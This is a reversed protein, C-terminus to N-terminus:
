LGLQNELKYLKKTANPYDEPHDELFTILSVFDTCLYNEYWYPYYGHHFISRDYRLNGQYMQVFANWTIVIRQNVNVNTFNKATGVGEGVGTLSSSHGILWYYYVFYALLSCDFTGDTYTLGQWRVSKAGKTYTKGNVLDLWKQPAGPDIVIKNNSDNNAVSSGYLDVIDGANLPSTFVLSSGVINFDVGPIQPVRDKNVILFSPTYALVITTQGQTAVVQQPAQNIVQDILITSLVYQDLDAFLTYGLAERLCLRVKNDVFLELEEDVGTQLENINPIYLERVFHHAGIIYM